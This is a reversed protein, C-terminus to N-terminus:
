SQNKLSYHITNRSVWIMSSFRHRRARRKSVKSGEWTQYLCVCYAAQLLSIHSSLFAVTNDDQDECITKGSFLKNNFIIEEIVNFWVKATVRDRQNPSLCAGLTVMAMVLTFDATVSDFTPQHITPWNPYWCSWYLALFREINTPCFFEYCLAELRYSWTITITTNKPKEMIASRIANVIEYTKVSLLADDYGQGPLTDLNSTGDPISMHQSTTSGVSYTDPYRMSTAYPKKPQNGFELNNYVDDFKTATPLNLDDGQMSPTVQQAYNSFVPLNRKWLESVDRYAYPKWPKKSISSRHELTGCEFTGILGYAKALRGLFPFEAVLSINLETPRRSQSRGLTFEKLLGSGMSQPAVNFSPNREAIIGRSQSPPVNSQSISGMSVGSPFEQTTSQGDIAMWDVYDSDDQHETVADAIRRYSCEKNHLACPQCTQHNNKLVCARKQRACRDCAKRKRGRAKASVQPLEWSEALRVKCTTWHRKLADPRSFSAKCFVCSSPKQSSSM